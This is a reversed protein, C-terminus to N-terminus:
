VGGGEIRRSEQFVKGANEMAETVLATLKEEDLSEEEQAHDSGSVEFSSFASM